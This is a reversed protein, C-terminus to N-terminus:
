LREFFQQFFLLQFEVSSIWYDWTHAGPRVIFDHKVGNELLRKHLDCNVQFFFDETGCDIILSLNAAKFREMQNVLTFEEWVQRNEEFSGLRKAMDWNKPFPRIDVGGSMSGAAGFVEPHHIALFLAGQGGMSLGTVARGKPRPVTSYYKDVYEVLEKSVFTEYRFTPDVPSDWYWSNNGDPCVIFIGKEDAHRKLDPKRAVWNRHNDSYGHLLYVVPCRNGVIAREPVIVVAPVKKNMAASYVDVTDVRAAKLPFALVLLLLASLMHKTNKM